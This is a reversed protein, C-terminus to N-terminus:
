RLGECAARAMDRFLDKMTSARWSSQGNHAAAWLRAAMAEVEGRAARGPLLITVRVPVSGDRGAAKESDYVEYRGQCDPHERMAYDLVFPRGHSGVRAWANIKM